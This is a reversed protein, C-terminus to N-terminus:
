RTEPQNADPGEEARLIVEPSALEESLILRFAAQERYFVAGSADIAEVSWSFSGVGMRSLDTLEYGPTASQLDYLARGSGGAGAFIRLRYSRAGPAERWLFSLRDRAAMDIVAGRAPVRLIPGRFSAAPLARREGSADTAASSPSDSEASRASPRPVEATEAAVATTETQSAVPAAAEVSFVFRNSVGGAGQVRWHYDGPPLELKLRAHNQKTDLFALPTAFDASRAIELRYSAGATTRSWLFGLGDERLAASSVRRGDEPLRLAPGAPNQARRVRFGFVPSMEGANEPAGAHRVRYYYDGPSLEITAGLSQVRRHQLRQNLYRDGFLELYYDARDSREPRWHFRVSARDSATELTTGNSPSYLQIRGRRMIRLRRVESAGDGSNTILRWYYTAARLRVRAFGNGVKIDRLGVSMWPDAALQLRVAGIKQPDAWSFDVDIEGADSFLTRNREPSQPFLRITERRPAENRSWILREGEQVSLNEANALAVAGPGPEAQLNGRDDGLVNVGGRDFELRRDEFQLNLGREYAGGTREVRMVGRRLEIEIADPDVAIVVMSNPDLDITSGDRMVVQARSDADTRVVSRNFVADGREIDDWVTRGSAKSEVLGQSQRLEGVAAGSAAGGVPDILLSVGTLTAALGGALLVRLDTASLPM